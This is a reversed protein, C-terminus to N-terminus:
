SSKNDNIISKKRLYARLGRTEERHRRYKSERGLAQTICEIKWMLYYLMYQPSINLLIFSRRPEGIIEEVDVEMHKLPKDRWKDVPFTFGGLLYIMIGILVDEMIGIEKKRAEEFINSKSLLWDETHLVNIRGEEVNRAKTRHALSSLLLTKFKMQEIRTRFTIIKNDSGFITNFASIFSMDGDRVPSKCTDQHTQIIKLAEEIRNKM